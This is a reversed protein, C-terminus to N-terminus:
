RHHQGEQGVGVARAAVVPEVREDVGNYSPAPSSAATAAARGVRGERSLRPEPLDPRGGPSDVRVPFLRIRSIATRLRVRRSSIFQFVNESYKIM